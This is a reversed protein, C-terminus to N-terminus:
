FARTEGFQALLYLAFTHLMFGRRLAYERANEAIQEFEKLLEPTIAERQEIAALMAQRPFKGIYSRLEDLIEPVTM